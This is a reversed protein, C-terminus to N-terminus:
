GNALERLTQATVPNAPFFSEIVLESTFVETSTEFVTTASLFDLDGFDTRLRFPVAVATPDITASDRPWDPAPYGRLEQELDM